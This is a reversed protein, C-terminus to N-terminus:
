FIDINLNYIFMYILDFLQNSYIYHFYTHSLSLNFSVVGFPM